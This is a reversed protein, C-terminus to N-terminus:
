SNATANADAMITQAEDNGDEEEKDGDEEEEADDQEEEQEEEEDDEEDEESDEEQAELEDDSVEEEEEDEAESPSPMEENYSIPTTLHNNIVERAHDVSTFFQSLITPYKAIEELTHNSYANQLLILVDDDVMVQDLAVPGEKPTKDEGMHTRAAYKNKESVTNTCKDAAAVVKEVHKTITKVPADSDVICALQQEEYENERAVFKKTENSDPGSRIPFLGVSKLSSQVMTNNQILDHFSAMYAQEGTTSKKFSMALVGPLTRIWHVVNGKKKLQPINTPMAAVKFGGALAPPAVKVAAHTSRSGKKSAKTPGSPATASKRGGKKTSRRIAKNTSKTTSKSAM